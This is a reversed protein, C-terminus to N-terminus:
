RDVHVRTGWRKKGKRPVSVGSASSVGQNLICNHTPLKCNNMDVWFVDGNTIVRLLSPM